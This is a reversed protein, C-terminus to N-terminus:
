RGSGGPVAEESQRRDGRETGELVEEDADDDIQSDDLGRWCKTRGAADQTEEVVTRDTLDTEDGSVDPPRPIGEQGRRDGQAPRGGLRHVAEREDKSRGEADQRRGLGHRHRLQDPPNAGGGPGAGAPHPSPQPEQQAEGARVSESWEPPGRGPLGNAASRIGMCTGGHALDAGDGGGHPIGRRFWSDLGRCRDVSDDPGAARRQGRHTGEDSGPVEGHGGGASIKGECGEHCGEPAESTGLQTQNQDAESRGERSQASRTRCPTRGLSGAPPRSRVSSQSSGRGSPGAINTETVAAAPHFSRGCGRDSRGLGPTEQRLRPLERAHALEQQQVGLMAVRTTAREETESRPGVARPAGEQAAQPADSGDM